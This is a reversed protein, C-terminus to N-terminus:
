GGAVPASPEPVAVATAHLTLGPSGPLPLVLRTSVETVVRAGERVALRSGPAIRQVAGAVAGAPEHRATLRAAARAADQCRVQGGVASGVALVAALVVVVAPLATALEATVSGQDRGM